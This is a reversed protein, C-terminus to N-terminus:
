KLYSALLMIATSLAIAGIIQNRLGALKADITARQAGCLDKTVYGPNGIPGNGEDDTM